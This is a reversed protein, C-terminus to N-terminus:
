FSLDDTDEGVSMFVGVKIEYVYQQFVRMYVFGRAELTVATNKMTVLTKDIHKQAFVDDIQDSLYTM